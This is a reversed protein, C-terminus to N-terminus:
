IIALERARAVAATRNSVSLKGFINKTHYRITNLSIFLKEGIEQNRLGEAMFHLVEMERESLNEILNSSSHVPLAPPFQKLLQTIYESQIGRQFAEKLLAQIPEGASLYIRTADIDMQSTQNLLRDMIEMALEIQKSQYYVLAQTIWTRYRIWHLGHKSTVKEMRDLVQLSPEIKGQAALVRAYVLFENSRWGILESDSVMALALGADETFGIREMQHFASRLKSELLDQLAGTIIFLRNIKEDRFRITPELDVLIRRAAPYDGQGIKVWWLTLWGDVSALSLSLPDLQLGKELVREAEVLQNEIYFIKGLGVWLHLTAAILNRNNAEFDQIARTLLDKAAKGQNSANMLAAAYQLFDVEILALSAFQHLSQCTSRISHYTQMAQELKGDRVLASALFLHNVCQLFTDDVPSLELAQQALHVAEQTLGYVSKGYSKLGLIEAQIAPKQRSLVAAQELYPIAAETQTTFSLTWAKDLCLRSRTMLIKQPFKEMWDTASAIKGQLITELAHKELLDLAFNNDGTALAHELAEDIFGQQDLWIAARQHIIPPLDPFNHLLQKELMDSFLHHYRYWEQKDDLPIIFLNTRELYNLTERAELLSIGPIIAMCESSNFRKLLCTHLLFKRIRETEQNLVEELLYEFIFRHTGNLAQVFDEIVHSSNNNARSIEHTLALAFMQLGAVWGETTRNLQILDSEETILENLAPFCKLFSITERLSFRLDDNHLEVLHGRARLRALPLPPEVRGCIVLKVHIPLHDIFMKISHHIESDLIVHYDDLVILLGHDVETLQEILYTVVMEPTFSQNAEILSTIRETFGPVKSKIAETLYSFFRSLHNDESDLSLWCIKWNLPVKQIWGALLTTKGAGASASILGLQIGPQLCQDLFPYIQPRSVHNPSLIPIQTKAALFPLM